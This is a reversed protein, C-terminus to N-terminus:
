IFAGYLWGCSDDNVLWMLIACMLMCLMRRLGVDRSRMICYMASLSLNGSVVMLKKMIDSVQICSAVVICSQILCEGIPWCYSTLVSKTSRMSSSGFKWKPFPVAIM